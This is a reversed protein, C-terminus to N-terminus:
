YRANKLENLLNELAEKVKPNKDYFCNLDNMTDEEHEDAIENLYKKPVYAYHFMRTKNIVQFDQKHEEKLITYPISLEGSIYQYKKGKGNGVDVKVNGTLEPMLLMFENDKDSLYTNLFSILMIEKSGLQM